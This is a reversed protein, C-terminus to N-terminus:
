KSYIVAKARCVRDVADFNRCKINIFGYEGLDIPEPLNDLATCNKTASGIWVTEGIENVISAVIEVHKNPGNFINCVKAGHLEKRSLVTEYEETAGAKVHIDQKILEVEISTPPTVPEDAFAGFSASLPLALSLAILLKKM